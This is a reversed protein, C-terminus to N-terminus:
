QGSGREASEEDRSKAHEPPNAAAVARKAREKYDQENKGPLLTFSSSL